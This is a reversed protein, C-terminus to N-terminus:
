EPRSEPNWGLRRARLLNGYAQPSSIPATFHEIAVADDHQALACLALHFHSSSAWRGEPHKELYSKDLWNVAAPLEHQDYKAVGIFYTCDERVSEYLKTINSTVREVVERLPPDQRSAFAALSRIGVRNRDQAIWDDLRVRNSMYLPIAERMNGQLHLMRADALTFHQYPTLPTIPQERTGFVVEAYEPKQQEDNVLRPLAWLEQDLEQTTAQRLRLSFAVLDSWLVARNEGSLRDQLFNMRPAWYTPTSELLLVVHALQEPRVRYRREADLDLAIVLNPDELVQRLTAIGKGGPGPIPLGITTDFLLLEGDILAAPLWPTLTAPGTPGARSMTATMVSEVRAQRLLEMFTWAREMDMARGVLLALPPSVYVPPSEQAPVCQINRTVWEFLAEAKALSTSSESIVHKVVDRLLFCGEMHLSDGRDFQASEVDVLQQATLRAALTTRMDVSLPQVLSQGDSHIKALYQNLRQAAIQHAAPSRKNSQLLHIASDLLTDPLVQDKGALGSSTSKSSQPAAAQRRCGILLMATVLALAMPLRRAMCPFYYM